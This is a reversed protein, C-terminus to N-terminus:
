GAIVQREASVLAGAASQLVLFAGKRLPKGDPVSAGLAECAGAILAPLNERHACIVIPEGSGALSASRRAADALIEHAEQRSAKAIAVPTAFSPEVLVAVGTATAYPRVTAVCREAPSSLVQCPGYCALLGALVKADATGRADLPRALDGGEKPRAPKRGAKAHRLLIFPSTVLPGSMLEDILTLDRRYTLRARAATVPLWAMEDVEETPTFPGPQACRAAWYRVRKPRGDVRYRSSRLPRGLVVDLGTEEAVERVAAELVHEERHCKGKPFSWDDYRPRHVLAIEPGPDGPRWVVAGAARIVESDRGEAM